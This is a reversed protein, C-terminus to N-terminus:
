DAAAGFEDSMARLTGEGAGAEALADHAAGAGSALALLLNWTGVHDPYGVGHFAAEIAAKLQATPGTGELADEQRRGAALTSRLQDEGAGARQLARAAASDAERALALLMDGTDIHDRGEAGSLGQAQVMARQAAPSFRNFPLVEDERAFRGGMRPQMRALRGRKVPLGLLGRAETKDVIGLEVAKLLEATTTIRLGDDRKPDM